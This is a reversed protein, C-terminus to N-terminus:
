KAKRTIIIAPYRVMARSKLDRDGRRGLRVSGNRGYIRRERYHRLANTGTWANALDVYSFEIKAVSGYRRRLAIAASEFIHPSVQKVFPRGSKDLGVELRRAYPLPNTIVIEKVDMVMLADPPTQPPLAAGDILAFHSAKYKGTVEPSRANLEEFAAKAAEARYDFGMWIVGDPKVDEFPAGRKGDVATVVGPMVGERAKQQSVIRDQLKHAERALAAAAAANLHKVYLTMSERFSAM